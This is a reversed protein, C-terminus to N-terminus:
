VTRNSRRRRHWLAAGSATGLLLLTSPEPVAAVTISVPGSLVFAAPTAFDAFGSASILEIDFVGIAQATLDLRAALRQAVPVVINPNGGLGDNTFDAFSLDFPPFVTTSNGGMASQSIGNFIYDPNTLHTEQQVPDFQLGGFGTLRVDFGFINILDGSNSEILVDITFNSGVQVTTASPDLTLTIAATAPSTLFGCGAAIAVLSCLCRNLLHNM